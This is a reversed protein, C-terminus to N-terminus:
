WAALGPSAQRPLTKRSPAQLGLGRMKYALAKASIRLLRAAEARNWRTGELAEAILAREV